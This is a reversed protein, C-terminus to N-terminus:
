NRLRTFRISGYPDNDTNQDILDVYRDIYVLSLCLRCQAKRIKRFSEYSRDGVGGGNGEPSEGDVAEVGGAVSRAAGAKEDVVAQDGAICEKDAADAAGVM